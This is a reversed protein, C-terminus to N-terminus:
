GIKQQNQVDDRLIDGVLRAEHPELGKIIRRREGASPVTQSFFDFFDEDNSACSMVGGRFGMMFSGGAVKSTAGGIVGAVGIRVGAGITKSNASFLRLLYL